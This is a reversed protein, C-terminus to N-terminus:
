QRFDTTFVLFAFVQFMKKGDNVRVVKAEPAFETRFSIPLVEMREAGNRGQRFAANGFM